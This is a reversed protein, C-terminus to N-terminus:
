GKARRKTRKHAVGKGTMERLLREAREADHSARLLAFRRRARELEERGREVQGARWLAEALFLRTRAAEQTRELKDYLEAAKILTSTAEIFNRQLLQQRGRGRLGGAHALPHGVEDYQALLSEFIQEAEQAQGCELQGEGYVALVLGRLWAHGEDGLMVLAEKASQVASESEGAEMALIALNAHALAIGRVNGIASCAALAQQHHERAVVFDGESM